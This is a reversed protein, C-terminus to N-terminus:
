NKSVTGIWSFGHSVNRTWGCYKRHNFLRPNNPKNISQEIM